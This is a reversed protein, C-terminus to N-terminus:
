KRRYSPFWSKGGGIDMLEPTDINDSRCLSCIPFFGYTPDEDMTRGAFQVKVVDSGFEHEADPMIRAFAGISDLDGSCDEGIIVVHWTGTKMSTAASEIRTREPAAGIYGSREPRANGAWIKVNKHPFGVKAKFGSAAANRNSFNIPRELVVYGRWGHKQGVSATLRDNTQTKADVMFDLRKRVLDPHCLWEGSRDRAEQDVKLQEAPELAEPLGLWLEDTDPLPTAERMPPPPEQEVGSDAFWSKVLRLGTTLDELHEIRVKAVTVSQDIRVHMKYGEFAKAKGTLIKWEDPVVATQEREYGVITGWRGPVSDPLQRGISKARSLRMDAGASNRTPACTDALVTSPLGKDGRNTGGGVVENSIYGSLESSYTRANVEKKWVGYVGGGNAGDGLGNETVLRPPDGRRARPSTSDDLCNACNSYQPARDAFGERRSDLDMGRSRKGSRLAEFRASAKGKNKDIGTIANDEACSQTEIVDFKGLSGARIGPLDLIPGTNMHSKGWPYQGRPDRSSDSDLLQVYKPSSREILKLILMRMEVPIGPLISVRCLLSFRTIRALATFPASWLEATPKPSAAGVATPVAGWLGASTLLHTPHRHLDLYYVSRTRREGGDLAGGLGSGIRRTRLAADDGWGASKRFFFKFSSVGNPNLSSRSHDNADGNHQHSRSTPPTSAAADEFDPPSHTFILDRFLPVVAKPCDSPYYAHSDYFGIRGTSRLAASARAELRANSDTRPLPTPLCSYLAYPRTRHCRSPQCLSDKIYAWLHPIAQSRALPLVPLAACPYRAVDGPLNAVPPMSDNPLSSSRPVIWAGSPWFSSQSPSPCSSPAESRFHDGIKAGSWTTVEEKRGGRRIKTEFGTAIKGEERERGEINGPIGCGADRTMRWDGAVRKTTESCLVRARGGLRPWDDMGSATIRDAFRGIARQRRRRRAVQLRRSERIQSDTHQLKRAAPEGHRRHPISCGVVGIARWKSRRQTPPEGERLRPRTDLLARTVLVREEEREARSLAQIAVRVGEKDECPPTAVSRVRSRSHVEDETVEMIRLREGRQCDKTSYKHAYDMARLIGDLERNGAM